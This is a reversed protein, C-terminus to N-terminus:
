ASRPAVPPLPTHRYPRTSPRPLEAVAQTGDVMSPVRSSWGGAMRRAATPMSNLPQLSPSPPARPQVRDPSPQPPDPRRRLPSATQGRPTRAPCLSRHAVRSRSPVPDDRRPVTRDCTFSPVKPRTLLQWFSFYTTTLLDRAPTNASYWKSSRAVHCSGCECWMCMCRVM